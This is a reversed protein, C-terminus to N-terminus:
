LAKPASRSRPHSISQYDYFSREFLPGQKLPGITSGRSARFQITALLWARFSKADLVSALNYAVRVRMFGGVQVQRRFRCLEM